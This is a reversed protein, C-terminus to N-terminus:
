SVHAFSIEWPRTKNYWLEYYDVDEVRENRLIKWVKNFQFM